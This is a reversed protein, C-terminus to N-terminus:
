ARLQLPRDRADLSHSRTRPGRPIISVKRVPDAGPTLMGVLAHGSEHYATRRRDEDTMVVQRETGLIIKEIADTLDRQEVATHDRRAAFLAAEDVILALGEQEPRARHRPQSASSTSPRRWRSRGRTSRSSRSAGTAIRPRFGHDPPRLARPAAACPRPDRSPQHGRARDREDRRRVRGDRDPDPQADARARRQRRQPRGRQGIRSRGIADLEDIFVIAPAAEKAQRSSTACAHLASASSRRSSSPPRYRSSPRMRGRGRGRPRAADERDRAARVAARRAPHARRAEHLAEPEQPLRRDRRARGRRRRDRGRGRIHSTGAGELRRRATSRGFTGLVGGGGARNMRRFLWVFFAVLLITPLFGLLLTVWLSRGTDPAKANVVVNGEDLLKTIQAPDIFSPVETKFKKVKVPKDDGPPDYTAEKKLEGEISDEQSTIESVNGAQVQNVFFPQYPVRRRDDPGRTVFSLLLNLALLGALVTFFWRSRPIMPQSPRKEGGGTRASDQEAPAKPPPREASSDSALGNM